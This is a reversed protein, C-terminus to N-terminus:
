QRKRKEWLIKMRLKHERKTKRRHCNACLAVGNNLDNKLEPYEAKTKIHDAEVVEKDILGCIQCTFNFKELVRKRWWDASIGGKWAYCKENSLGLKIKKIHEDTLKKGLHAKKIALKTKESVKKGYFPNKDGVYSRRKTYREYFKPNKNVCERSCFKQRNGGTAIYKKGCVECIKKM